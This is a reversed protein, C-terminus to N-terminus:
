RRTWGRNQTLVLWGSTSSWWLRIKKQESALELLWAWMYRSLSRRLCNTLSVMDKRYKTWQSLAAWNGPTHINAPNGFKMIPEVLRHSHVHRSTASLLFYFYSSITWNKNRNLKLRSNILDIHLVLSSMLQLPNIWRWIIRSIHSSHITAPCCKLCREKKRLIPARLATRIGATSPPKEATRICITWLSLKEWVVFKM